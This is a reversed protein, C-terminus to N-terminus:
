ETEPTANLDFVGTEEEVVVVGAEEKVKQISKTSIHKEEKEDAIGGSIGVVDAEVAARWGDKNGRDFYKAAVQMSRLIAFFEEVEDDETAVATTNKKGDDGGRKVVSRKSRMEESEKEGRKRKDKGKVDM